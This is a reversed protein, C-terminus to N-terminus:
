IYDHRRLWKYAIFGAFVAVIAFAALAYPSEIFSLFGFAGSGAVTGAVSLLEPSKLAAPEPSMAIPADQAIEVTPKPISKPKALALPRGSWIQKAKALYAMRSALGNTGGNIRKTITQIDDNDAFDNLEHAKWYECAIKLSVDAEAAKDPDNILDLGLKKGYATYNYRGTCQFIGRGHYRSGDGPNVNGLRKGVATKYGYHKEFYAPDGYEQLTAFGASEHAAQAIFHCFRLGSTIGYTALTAQMAPALPKLISDKGNPCLRKLDAAIIQM